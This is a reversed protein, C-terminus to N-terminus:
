RENSIYGRKKLVKNLRKRIRFLKSKVKSESINYYKAIEKISNEEYYYMIFIEKEQKKLKSLEEKVINGREREIFVLEINGIDAIKEEYDDINEDLKINHFKKKVLNRAIGAIYPPMDKNYDLKNQNNWLTYFTDLVIEEIDEDSLNYSCNKVVTYVYGIYDNM